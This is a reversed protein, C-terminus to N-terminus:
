SASIFSVHHQRSKLWGKFGVVAVVWCLALCTIAVALNLFMMQDSPDIRYTEHAKPQIYIFAHFAGDHGAQMAAITIEEDSLVFMLGGCALFFSALAETPPRSPLISRPPSVWVFFYTFCRM